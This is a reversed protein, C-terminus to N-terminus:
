CLYVFSAQTPEITFSFWSDLGVQQGHPRMLAHGTNSGTVHRRHPTEPMPLRRVRAATFASRDAAATALHTKMGSMNSGLVSMVMYEGASATVEAQESANAQAPAVDFISFL